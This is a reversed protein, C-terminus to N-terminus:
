VHFAESDPLVAAAQISNGGVHITRLCTCDRWVHVATDDNCEAATIVRGDRAAAVDVGYCGFRPHQALTIVNGSYPRAVFALRAASRLARSVLAVRGIDHALRLVDVSLPGSTFGVSNLM